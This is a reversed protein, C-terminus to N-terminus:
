CKSSKEKLKMSTNNYTNVENEEEKKNINGKKRGKMFKTNALYKSSINIYKEKQPNKNLNSKKLLEKIIKGNKKM